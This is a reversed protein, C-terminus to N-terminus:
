IHILSLGLGEGGTQSAIKVGRKALTKKNMELTAQTAKWNIIKDALGRNGWGTTTLLRRGLPRMILTKGLRGGRRTIISDALDQGIRTGIKAFQRSSHIAFPTLVRKSIFSGPRRLGRAFKRVPLLSRRLIRARSRIGKPILARAIQAVIKATFRNGLIGSLLKGLIGYSGTSTKEYAFTGSLDMGKELQKELDEFKAEAERRNNIASQGGVVKLMQDFKEELLENRNILLKQTDAIGGAVMTIKASLNEVKSETQLLKGELPGFIKVVTDRLDKDQVPISNSDEKKLKVAAQKVEESAKSKELERKEDAQKIRDWIVGAISTTLDGSYTKTLSAM